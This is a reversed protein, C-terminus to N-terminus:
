FFVLNDVLLEQTNSEEFHRTSPIIRSVFHTLLIILTFSWM